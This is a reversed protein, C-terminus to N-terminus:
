CFKRFNSNKQTFLLFDLKRPSLFVVERQELLIEVKGYPGSFNDRATSGMNVEELQHNKIKNYANITWLTCFIKEMVM